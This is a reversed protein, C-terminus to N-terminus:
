RSTAAHPRGTIAAVTSCPPRRGADARRRQAAGPHVRAGAVLAAQKPFPAFRSHDVALRAM